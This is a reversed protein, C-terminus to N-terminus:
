TFLTITSVPGKFCNQRELEVWVELLETWECGLHMAKLRKIQAELWTPTRLDTVWIFLVICVDFM